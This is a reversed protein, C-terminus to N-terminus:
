VYRRLARALQGVYAGGFLNVHVLLPYLQYLPIRERWGEALPFAEHYAAFTRDSFGGFLKMMALDIERHGGYVAPDVLAPAGRDDVILNGSWLDGHLRAPPEAPGCLTELRPYLREFGQRLESGLMGAARRIMPELRQTRFFTPWDECRTNSQPLSGIFNDRDLGFSPAGSAHLAALERGLRADYDAAPSAAELLELALYSTEREGVGLVAPIRIAGPERLWRLGEAEARIMSGADEYLKVFARRGDTFVVRYARGICGGGIARATRITTGLDASLRGAIPSPLESTM